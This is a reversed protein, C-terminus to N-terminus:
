KNNLEFWVWIVIQCLNSMMCEVRPNTSPNKECTFKETKWYKGRPRAYRKQRHKLISPHWGARIQPNHAWALMTIRILTCYRALLSVCSKSQLKSAKLWSWACTFHTYPHRCFALFILQSKCYPLNGTSWSIILYNARGPRSPCFRQFFRYSIDSYIM